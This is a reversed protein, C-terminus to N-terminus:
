FRPAAAVSMEETGGDVTVREGATAPEAPGGGAGLEAFATDTPVSPQQLDLALWAVLGSIREPNKLKSLHTRYTAAMSDMEAVQNRLGEVNYVAHRLSAGQRVVALALATALLMVYITRTM